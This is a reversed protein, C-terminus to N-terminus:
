GTHMKNLMMASRNSERCVSHTCCPSIVFLIESVWLGHDGDDKMLSRLRHPSQFQWETLLHLSDLKELMSLDLWNRSEAEESIAEPAPKSESPEKVSAKPSAPSDARAEESQLQGLPTDVNHAIDDNDNIPHSLGVAESGQEQKPADDDEDKDEMPTASDHSQM